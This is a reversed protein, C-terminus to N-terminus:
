AAPTIAQVYTINNSATLSDDAIRSLQPLLLPSCNNSNLRSCVTLGQRRTFNLGVFHFNSSMQDENLIFKFNCRCIKCVRMECGFSLLFFFMLYFVGRRSLFPLFFFCMFPSLLFYFDDTNQLKSIYENLTDM